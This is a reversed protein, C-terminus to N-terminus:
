TSPTNSKQNHLPKQKPKSSLPIQYPTQVREDESESTTQDLFNWTENHSAALTASQKAKQSLNINALSRLAQVSLHESSPAVTM